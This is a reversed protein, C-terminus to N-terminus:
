SKHVAPPLTNAPVNGQHSREAYEEVVEVNLRLAERDQCHAIHLVGNDTVEFEKSKAIELSFNSRHIHVSTM